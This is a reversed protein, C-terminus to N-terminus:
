SRIEKLRTLPKIQSLKRIHSSRNAHEVQDLERYEVSLFVIDLGYTSAVREWRKMYNLYMKAEGRAYGGGHAYLIVCQNPKAHVWAGEILDTKRGPIVYGLFDPTSVPKASREPVPGVPLRYVLDPFTSACSSLYARHLQIRLSQYVPVHPLLLRRLLVFSSQALWTYVFRITRLPNNLLLALLHM